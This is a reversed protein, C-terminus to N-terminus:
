KSLTVTYTAIARVVMPIKTAAKAKIVASYTIPSGILIPKLTDPMIVPTLALDGIASRSPINISAMEKANGNSKIRFKISELKGFNNATDIIGGKITDIKLNLTKINTNRIENINFSNINNKLQEQLNLNSSIPDIIVSTPSLSLVPITFDITDRLVLDQQISESIKNCSTFAIFFSLLAINSLRNKM